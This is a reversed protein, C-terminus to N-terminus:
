ASELEKRIKELHEKDMVKGHHRNLRYFIELIQKKSYRDAELDSYSCLTGTITHRDQYTLQSFKLGKFTIRDELFDFLTSYRQKGDLIEYLPGQTSYSRRVFVFKGIECGNFISEILAEKDEQSWVYGRQYDVELDVGFHYARHILVEVDTQGFNLRPLDKVTFVTSSKPQLYNLDFWAVFSESDAYTSPAGKPYSPTTRQTNLVRYYLGGEFKELVVTKHYAGYTVEQGVEFNKSISRHRVYQLKDLVYDIQRKTEQAKREEETLEPKKSKKSVRKM